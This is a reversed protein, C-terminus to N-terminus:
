LSYSMSENLPLGLSKTDLIPTLLKGRVAVTHVDAVAVIATDIDVVPVVRVVVVNTDTGRPVEKETM